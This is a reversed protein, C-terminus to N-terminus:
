QYRSSSRWATWMISNILSATGVYFPAMKGYDHQLTTPSGTLVCEAPTHHALSQVLPISNGTNRTHMWVKNTIDLNGCLM